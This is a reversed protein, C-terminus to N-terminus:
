VWKARGPASLLKPSIPSQGWRKHAGMMTKTLAEKEETSMKKYDEPDGFMFPKSEKKTTTTSPADKVQAGHIVAQFKRKDDERKQAHEYLM